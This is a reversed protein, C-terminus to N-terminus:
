LGDIYANVLQNSGKQIKRGFNYMCIKGSHSVGGVLEIRSKYSNRLEENHL